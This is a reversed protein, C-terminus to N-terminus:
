GLKVLDTVVDLSLESFILFFIFEFSSLSDKLVLWPFFMEHYAVFLFFFAIEWKIDIFKFLFESSVEIDSLYVALSVLFEVLGVLLYLIKESKKM